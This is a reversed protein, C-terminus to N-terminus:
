LSRPRSWKVSRPNNQPRAIARVLVSGCSFPATVVIATDEMDPAAIKHKLRRRRAPRGEDEWGEYAIVADLKGCKPDDPQRRIKQLTISVRTGRGGEDAAGQRGRGAAGVGAAV